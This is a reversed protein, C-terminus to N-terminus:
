KRTSGAVKEHETPPIPASADPGPWKLERVVAEHFDTTQPSSGQGRGCLTNHSILDRASRAGSLAHLSCTPSAKRIVLPTDDMAPCTPDFPTPTMTQIEPNSMKFRIEPARIHVHEPRAYTMNIDM